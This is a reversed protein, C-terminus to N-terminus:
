FACECHISHKAQNIAKFVDEFKESGNKFFVIRNNHSFVAGEKQLNDLLVDQKNEAPTCLFTLFVATLLVLCRFSKPSPFM